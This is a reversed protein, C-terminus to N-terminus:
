ASQAMWESVLMSTTKDLALGGFAEPVDVGILGLAAARRVLERAMGWDKQELRDLAPLVENAVFEKVTQVIMRQEDNLREPTFVTGADTPQILWEGGHLLPTTPAATPTM